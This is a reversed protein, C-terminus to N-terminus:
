VASAVPGYQSIYWPLLESLGARLGHTPQYGLLDRAKSIDAESHRVDGSRFDRYVAQLGQVSVGRSALLERLVIFLENLSTREGVAVNYVQNLAETNETIAALLNAQVVNQVYCFDRSTKGDGYIEVQEGNLLSRIWRPIVAAYPGDPDQRAGFVNFYRFGVCQM